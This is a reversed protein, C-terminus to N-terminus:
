KGAKTEGSITLVPKKGSTNSYIKITKHFAGSVKSTYYVHVSGTDGPAVPRRTWSPKVCGCSPIADSVVLPAKGENKFVFVHESTEGLVNDSFVYSTEEFVIKAKEAAQTMALPLSVILFLFLKKM